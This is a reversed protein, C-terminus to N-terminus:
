KTSGVVAQVFNMHWWAWNKEMSIPTECNTKRKQGLIAQFKSGESRLRM